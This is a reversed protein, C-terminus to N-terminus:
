EGHYQAEEESNEVAACNHCHGLDNIKAVSSGCKACPYTGAQEAQTKSRCTHCLGNTTAHAKEGCRSCVQWKRTGFATEWRQEMEDNSVQQNRRSSESLFMQAM